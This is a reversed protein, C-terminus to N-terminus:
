YKILYQVSGAKPQVTASSGYLSNSMSASLILDAANGGGDPLHSISFTAKTQSPKYGGPNRKDGYYWFLSDLTNVDGPERAFALRADGTINPGFM